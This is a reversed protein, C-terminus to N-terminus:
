ELSFPAWADRALPRRDLADPGVLDQLTQWDLSFWSPVEARLRRLADVDEPTVPLDRDFNLLAKSDVRSSM